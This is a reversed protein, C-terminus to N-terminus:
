VAINDILRTTGLWAAALLRANKIDKAEALSDADRLALYDPRFGTAKLEALAEEVASAEKKGALLAERCAQLTAHLRPATQREDPNLYANRSSLALGDAERVTPAAEIRVPIKLDAAMRKIVLLQQYDKEGFVAVDCMASLLLRSVVTAVGGFFHPRFATELGLAPGEMVIRTANNPGYMEEVDPIFVAAIGVAALADIDAQERRPYSELDENPAFQTPNVFISALVVDALGQAREMLSLHGAHLAGMTPVLASTQGAKATQHQFARLAEVTRVIEM